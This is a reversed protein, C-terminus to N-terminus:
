LWYAAKYKWDFAIKGSPHYIIQRVENPDKQFSDTVCNNTTFNQGKWDWITAGHPLPRIDKARGAKKESQLFENLQSTLDVQIGRVFETVGANQTDDKDPTTVDRITFQIDVDQKGVKFDRCLNAFHTAKEVTDIGGKMATVNFRIGLGLEHLKAATGWIDLEEEGVMLTQNKAPDYHALSLCVLTMQLKHWDRLESELDCLTLGNTQLENFIFESCGRKGQPNLKKLYKTILEPYLTPEGKGTFLATTADAQKALQVAIPFNDWNPEKVHETKATM